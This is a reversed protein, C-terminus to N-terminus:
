LARRTEPIIKMVYYTSEYYFYQFGFLKFTLWLTEFVLYGFKALIQNFIVNSLFQINWYYICRILRTLASVSVVPRTIGDPVILGGASTYVLHYYYLHRCRM